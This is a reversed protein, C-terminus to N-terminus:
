VALCVEAYGREGCWLRRSKHQSALELQHSKDQIEDFLRVNEVAIV